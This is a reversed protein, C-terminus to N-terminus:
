GLGTVDLAYTAGTTGLEVVAPLSPTVGVGIETFARTLIVRRHPPSQMWAYVMGAATAGGGSGWGINQGIAAVRAPLLAPVIRQLPSLGALSHDAFYDGRVMDASQGQAIRALAANKRLRRLHHSARQENVLCMTAREVAAVDSATPALSANRCRKQAAAALAATLALVLTGVLLAASFAACLCTRARLRMGQRDRIIACGLARDISARVGQPTTWHCSM